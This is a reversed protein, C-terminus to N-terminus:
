PNTQRIELFYRPNDPKLPVETIGGKLDFGFNQRIIEIGDYQEIAATQRTFTLTSGLQTVMDYGEIGQNEGGTGAYDFSAPHQREVEVTVREGAPITLPFTVYLIRDHAETELLLDDLRNWQYREKPATGLISHVAAFKCFSEYYLDFSVADHIGRHSYGSAEDRLRDYRLKAIERLVEELTSEYREVHVSVDSIESGRECAGNEYGQIRYSEWDDGLLVLYKTEEEPTRIGERIFTSHQKEGTVANEGFGNMGFTLVTTKKTDYVAEVCLTAAGADSGGDNLDTLRYVTVPQTFTPAEAFADILYSGDSLLDAYGEWSDLELLNVSEREMGGPSAVGTFGGSYAGAYLEWDTKEGNVTIEPLCNTLFSAAVPYIATVTQPEAAPNHLVYSDRVAAYRRGSSPSLTDDNQDSEFNWTISREAELTTEERTTLPFVPGVYSMFVSGAEHGSGGSEAPNESSAPEPRGPLLFVGLVLLLCAAALSPWKVWPRMTKKKRKADLIQGDKVDGLLDLLEEPKM